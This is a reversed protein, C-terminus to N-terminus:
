DATALRELLADAYPYAALYDMTEDAFKFRRQVIARDSEGAPPQETCKVGLFKCVGDATAKALKARYASDKLLSVDNQSTHFGYEILVAPANTDTLVTYPYYRSPATRLKVGAARFADLLKAALVNRPATAPGESTYLELGSANYWGGNGAANSHISVFADVKAENSIKCREALSPYGNIDRTMVVSVGRAALLDRVRTGVDYAFEYEYYGGDPSKNANGPGHGPDICVKLM